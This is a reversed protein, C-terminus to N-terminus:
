RSTVRSHGALEVIPSPLEALPHFGIREVAYIVEYAGDHPRVVMVDGVSVSTVDSPWSRGHVDSGVRNGISFAHEAAHAGTEGDLHLQLDHATALAHGPQYGDFNDRDCNKFVQVTYRM